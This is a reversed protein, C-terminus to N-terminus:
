DDPRDLADKINRERNAMLPKGAHVYKTTRMMEALGTDIDYGHMLYQLPVKGDSYNGAFFYGHVVGALVKSNIEAANPGQRGRFLDRHLDHGDITKVVKNKLHGMYLFYHAVNTEIPMPRDWHPANPGNWDKIKEPLPYLGVEGLSHVFDPDVHGNTKIGAECNTIVWVDDLTVSEADQGYRGRLIGGIGDLQSEIEAQNRELFEFKTLNQFVLNGM